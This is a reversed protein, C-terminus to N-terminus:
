RCCSHDQKVDHKASEAKSPQGQNTSHDHHEADASPKRHRFMMVGCVGLLAIALIPLIFQDM